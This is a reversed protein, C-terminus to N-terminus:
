LSHLWTRNWELYQFLINVATFSFLVPRGNKTPVVSTSPVQYIKSAHWKECVHYKKFYQFRSSNCLYYVKEFNKFHAWDNNGPTHLQRPPHLTPHTHTHPLPHTHLFLVENKKVLFHSLPIFNFFPIQSNPWHYTCKKPWCCTWSPKADKVLFQNGVLHFSVTTGLLRTCRLHLIFSQCM